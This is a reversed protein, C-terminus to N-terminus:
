HFTHHLMPLQEQMHHLPLSETTAFSSTGFLSGSLNGQFSGTNYSSTFANFSSTTVFSSVDVVAQSPAWSASLAWSSTGYLSGTAQLNGTGDLQPFGYPKDAKDLTVITKM